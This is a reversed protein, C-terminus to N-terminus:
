IASERIDFRKTFYEAVFNLATLTLAMTIAPILVIHPAQALMDRGSGLMSGWSSMPAPVGLGLFSLGGEAIIAVGILVICYALVPGVVNPTIERWIIRANKTGMGRAATVFDRTAYTRTASQAVRAVQPFFVIGIGLIIVGISPGIFMGLAILAVLPPFSLVVDSVGSLIKSVWGGFYGAMVGLPAGILCGVAVSGLGVLMSVKSGQVLRALIDRGIEDTGLLHGPAGPRAAIAAYDSITPNTSSVLPYVICTVVLLALWLLSIILLVPLRRRSRKKGAAAGPTTSVPPEPQVIGRQARFKFALARTM